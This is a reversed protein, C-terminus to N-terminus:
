EFPAVGDKLSKPSTVCLLAKIEEQKTGSDTSEPCIFFACDVKGAEHPAFLAVFSQAQSTKYVPAEASYPPPLGKFLDFGERWHKVATACDGNSGKQISIAFNGDLSTSATSPLTGQFGWFFFLVDVPAHVGGCALVRGCM